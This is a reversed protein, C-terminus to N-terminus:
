WRARDGRRPNTYPVLSLLLAALGWILAAEVIGAPWSVAVLCLGGAVALVLTNAVLLLRVVLLATASQTAAWRAPSLRSLAPL